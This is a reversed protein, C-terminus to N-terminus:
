NLTLHVRNRASKYQFKLTWNKLKKWFSIKVNFPPEVSSYSFYPSSCYSSLRACAHKFTYILIFSSVRECPISTWCLSRRTWVSFKRSIGNVRYSQQLVSFWYNATHEKHQRIWNTDIDFIAKVVVICNYCNYLPNYMLDCCNEVQM